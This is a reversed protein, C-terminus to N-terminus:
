ELGDEHKTGSAQKSEWLFSTWKVIIFEYNAVIM